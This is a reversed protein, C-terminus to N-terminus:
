AKSNCIRSLIAEIRANPWDFREAAIATLVFGGPFVIIVHMHEDYGVCIYGYSEGPLFKECTAQPVFWEPFVCELSSRVRMRKDWLGMRGNIIVPVPRKNLRVCEGGSSYYDFLVLDPMAQKMSLFGCGLIDAANATTTSLYIAGTYKKVYAAMYTAVASFLAGSSFIEWSVNGIAHMVARTCNPIRNSIETIYEVDRAYIRYGILQHLRPGTKLKEGIATIICNSTVIKFNIMLETEASSSFARIQNGTENLLPNHLIPAATALARKRQLSLNSPHNVGEDMCATTLLNDLSTPLSATNDAKGGIASSHEYAILYFPVNTNSHTRLVISVNGCRWLNAPAIGDSLIAITMSFIQKPSLTSQSPTDLMLIDELNSPITHRQCNNSDGSRGNRTNYGGFFRGKGVPELGDIVADQNATGKQAYANNELCATAGQRLGSVVSCITGPSTSPLIHSTVANASVPATKSIAGVAKKLLNTIEMHSADIRADVAPSDFSKDSNTLMQTLNFDMRIHNDPGTIDPLCTELNAGLELVTYPLDNGNKKIYHLLQLFLMKLREEDLNYRTGRPVLEDQTFLLDKYSIYEGAHQTKSLIRVAVRTFPDYRNQSDCEIPLSIFLGGQDEYKPLSFIKEHNRVHPILLTHLADCPVYIAPSSVWRSCKGTGNFRTQLSVSIFKTQYGDFTLIPAPAKIDAINIGAASLCDDPIIIHSLRKHSSGHNTLSYLTESEIHAEM